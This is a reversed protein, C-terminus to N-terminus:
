WVILVVIAGKFLLVIGDSNLILWHSGIISSLQLNTECVINYVKSLLNDKKRAFIKNLFFCFVYLNKKKKYRWMWVYVVFSINKILIIM